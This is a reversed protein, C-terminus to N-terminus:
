KALRSFVNRSHPTRDPYREQWLREVTAFTGRCEGLILLIDYAERNSYFMSFLNLSISDSKQQAISVSIITISSTPSFNSPTITEHQTVTADFTYTAGHIENCFVNSM